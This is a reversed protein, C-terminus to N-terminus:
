IDINELWDTAFKRKQTERLFHNTVANKILM